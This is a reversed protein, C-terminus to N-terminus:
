MLWAVIVCGQVRYYIAAREAEDESLCITIGHETGNCWEVAWM